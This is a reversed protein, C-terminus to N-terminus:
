DSAEGPKFGSLSQSKLEVLGGLLGVCIKALTLLVPLALAQAPAVGISKLLTLFTMERLGAGAFSVPLSTVVVEVARIWGYVLIDPSLGLAQSILFIGVIDLLQRSFSLLILKLHFIPGAHRMAEVSEIVRKGRPRLKQPLFRQSLGHAFRTSAPLLAVFYATGVLALAGGIFGPNLDTGTRGVVWCTLGVGFLTLTQSLRNFLLAALPIAGDSLLKRFLYWRSVGGLGPAFVGYFRSILDFQWVRLLAVKPGQAGLLFRLQVSALLPVGVVLVAFGALTLLPDAQLLSHVLTDTDVRRFLM